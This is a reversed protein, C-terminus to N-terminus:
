PPFGKGAAGTATVAVGPHEANCTNKQGLATMSIKYYTTGVVKTFNSPAVYPNAASGETKPNDVIVWCNKTKTAFTALVMSSGDPPAYISVQAQQTSVGATTVTSGAVFTLSHEASSLTASNVSAYSQGGSDYAARANLLATNLNSQAVRDNASKTVGLFTPIAIALLIALILLSVMVEILTFGSDFIHRAHRSEILLNVTNPSLDPVVAKPSALM